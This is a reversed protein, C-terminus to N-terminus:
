EAETWSNKFRYETIQRYIHGTKLVISPFHTHFMADPFHQAQLCIGSHDSYIKGGKGITESMGNATYIQVGPETTYMEMSLGNSACSLTAEHELLGNESHALVFNHDYGGAPRLEESDFRAGIAYPTTFDFATGAVRRIEGTTMLQEDGPTYFNANLWLQHDCITGSGALNFYSHNTLNIVTDADASASYDLRVVNEETLTYRLRVIMEGPFGQDGDASVLTMTIGDAEFAGQWLSAQFGRLGGHATFTDCNRTLPYTKEHLAIEFNRLRNAVRGCTAGMSNAPVAYPALEDFGLVVDTLQGNADPVVLSTIRAGLDILELRTGQNNEMIYKTVVRGDSLKGFPKSEFRM